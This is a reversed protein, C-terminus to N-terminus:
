RYEDQSLQELRACLNQAVQIRQDLRATIQQLLEQRKELNIEFGQSIAATEEVIKEFSRMVAEDKKSIRPRKVTLIVALLVLIIVDIGIQLMVASHTQTEFLKLISEMSAGKLSKRGPNVPDHRCLEAATEGEPLRSPRKGPCFALIKGHKQVPEAAVPFIYVTDRFAVNQEKFNQYRTPSQYGVEMRIATIMKQGEIEYVLLFDLMERYDPLPIPRMISTVPELRSTNGFFAAHTKFKIFLFGAVALLLCLAPSGFM